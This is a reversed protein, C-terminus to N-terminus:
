KAKAAIAKKLDDLEECGKPCLNELRGLNERAKDMEGRDAYLEGLYELAGKHKPDLELAKTYHILATKWDGSKRLSFGLLNQVDANKSGEPIASLEKVAGTFDQAKIKTRISTLDPGTATAANFVSDDAQAFSVSLLVAASFSVLLAKLRM